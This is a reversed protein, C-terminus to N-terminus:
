NYHCVWNWGNSDKKIWVTVPAANQPTKKKIRSQLKLAIDRRGLGRSVGWRNFTQVLKSMYQDDFESLCLGKTNVINGFDM